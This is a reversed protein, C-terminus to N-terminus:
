IHELPTIGMLLGGLPADICRKTETVGELLSLYCVCVCM